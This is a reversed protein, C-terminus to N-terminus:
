KLNKELHEQQWDSGYLFKGVDFDLHRETKEGMKGEYKQPDRVGIAFCYIPAFPQDNVLIVMPEFGNKKFMKAIGLTTMRWYDGYTELIHLEQFVPVVLIVADKSLDCLNKFAQEINLVHELTTHNFVVDFKGRLDPPLPKGLDLEIEEGENQKISGMGKEVGSVNSVIYGSCNKFYDKYSGGEKDRDDWGSVNIVNGGFVPGYFRLLANSFRRPNVLREDLLRSAAGRLCRYFLFLTRASIGSKLNSVREVNNGM